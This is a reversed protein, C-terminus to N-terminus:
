RSIGTEAWVADLAGSRKLDAMLRNMDGVGIPGGDRVLVRHSYRQDFHDSVLLKGKADPNASLYGWLYSDTVVALDVRGALVMDLSSKPSKVLKMGWDRALRDPDADFGAFGYHYGQIGAIHRGKLQRFFDQGRGPQALAVFLEGGSLFVDTFHVPVKRETWEWDPSEFFMVDFRGEGLEAYRRRASTPVFQFRYQTQVDNLRAILAATVGTEDAEVFPPFEYGGVRVTQGAVAPVSFFALVAWVAILFVRIM